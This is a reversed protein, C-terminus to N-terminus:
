TKGFSEIVHRSWSGDSSKCHSLLGEQCCLVLCDMRNVICCTVYSLTYNNSVEIKQDVPANAELLLRVIELKGHITAVM